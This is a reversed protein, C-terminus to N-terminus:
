KDEQESLHRNEDMMADNTMEQKAKNLANLSSRASIVVGMGVAFVAIFTLPSSGASDQYIWAFFPAVGLAFAVYFIMPWIGTWFNASVVAKSYKESLIEEDVIGVGTSADRIDRM